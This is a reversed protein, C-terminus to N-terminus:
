KVGVDQKKIFQRLTIKPFNPRPCSLRQTWRSCQADQSILFQIKDLQFFPFDPSFRCYQVRCPRFKKDDGGSLHSCKM